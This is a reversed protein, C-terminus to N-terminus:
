FHQLRPDGIQVGTSVSYYTCARASETVTLACRRQSGVAGASLTVLERAREPHQQVREVRVRERLGLLM